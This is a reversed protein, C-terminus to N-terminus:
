GSESASPRQRGAPASIAVNDLASVGYTRLGDAGEILQRFREIFRAAPAGDIVDHDFSVTVSLFERVVICHDVVAPKEGIGGLTVQLSHNPVPIGWGGGAGFMGISSVLVTGYFEKLRQPNQFLAWLFSRRVFAPMQVFWDIFKSEASGQHEQQFARIEQHLARVDKKNVGRLIHPRLTKRGDVEVEFLMNVDVEDFLILQNRWNRYANLQKDAQIAQGLCALIFASFSLAEGTEAKQRRLISRAESVDFEVLGHITHKQLGLRGGDVMLQRTRPYPLITYPPQKTNM